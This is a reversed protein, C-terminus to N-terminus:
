VEAMHVEYIGGGCIRGFVISGGVMSGVVACGEM